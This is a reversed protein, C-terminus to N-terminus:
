IITTSYLLPMYRSITYKEYNSYHEENYGTYLANLYLKYYGGEITYGLFSYSKIYNYTNLQPTQILTYNGNSFNSIIYINQQYYKDNSTSTRLEMIRGSISLIKIYNGGSINKDYLKQLVWSSGSVQFLEAGDGTGSTIDGSTVCSGHRFGYFKGNYEYMTLSGNYTHLSGTMTTISSISISTTSSRTIFVYSNITGSSTTKADYFYYYQNKNGKKLLFGSHNAISSVEITGIKKMQTDTTNFQYTTLEMCDKGVSTDEVWDSHAEVVYLGTSDVLLDSLVRGAYKSADHQSPCYSMINTCKTTSTLVGSSSISIEYVNFYTNEKRTSRSYYKYTIVVWFKNTESNQHFRISRGECGSVMNTTISISSKEALPTNTVYRLTTTFVYTSSNYSTSYYIFNNDNLIQKTGSFTPLYNTDSTEVLTYSHTYLDLPYTVKNGDITVKEATGSPFNYGRIM